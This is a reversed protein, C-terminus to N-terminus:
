IATSYRAMPGQRAIGLVALVEKEMAPGGNRGSLTGSAGTWSSYVMTNKRAAERTAMCGSFSVSYRPFRSVGTSSVSIAASNRAASTFGAPGAAAGASAYAEAAGTSPKRYPYWVM